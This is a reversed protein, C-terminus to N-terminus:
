LVLPPATNRHSWICAAARRSRDRLSLALEEPSFLYARVAVTLECLCEAGKRLIQCAVTDGQSAAKEVLGAYSAIRSAPFEATYFARVLDHVDPIGTAELLWDHLVTDPGWKEKARLAARLAQRTLDLAAGEDGILPGWGGTRLSEGQANRGFSASGTGAITIIGPAGGLAGSHAVEVDSVLVLREARFLTKLIPERGVPGGSFGLVASAFHLEGFDSNAARCAASLCDRMAAAFRESGGAANVYSCPGGSGMGLVRGAADGIVATTGTQGGDVGLFLEHV